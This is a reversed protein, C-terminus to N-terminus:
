LFVPAPFADPAVTISPLGEAKILVYDVEFESVEGSGGALGAFGSHVVRPWNIQWGEPEPVSGDALWFKAQLQNGGPADSGTQRLRLWYWTDIEWQVALQPGWAIYDDLFGVHRGTVPGTADTDRFHLDLAQGPHSNNPDSGVAIGGRTVGGSSFEFATVKMRALVEQVVNDYGPAAYLLHNPDGFLSPIVLVGNAQTYLDDGVGVSVWNPDRAEGTFDHQFGNVTQGVDFPTFQPQQAQLNTQSLGVMLFAILRVKLSTINTHM